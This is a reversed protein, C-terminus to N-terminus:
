LTKVFDVAYLFFLVSDSHLIQFFILANNGRKIGAIILRADDGRVPHALQGAVQDPFADGAQIHAARGALADVLAHVLALQHQLVNHRFGLAFHGHDGMHGTVVSGVALHQGGM